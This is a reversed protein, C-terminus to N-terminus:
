SPSETNQKREHFRDVLSRLTAYLDTIDEAPLKDNSFQALVWPLWNEVEDRRERLRKDNAVRACDVCDMDVWFEGDPGEYEEAKAVPRYDAETLDRGNTKPVPVWVGCYARIMTEGRERADAADGKRWIHSLYPNQPQARRYEDRRRSLWEPSYYTGRPPAMGRAISDEVEFRDRYKASATSLLAHRTIRKCASCKLDGTERQEGNVQDYIRNRPQKCTRLNGCECCLAQKETPQWRSM